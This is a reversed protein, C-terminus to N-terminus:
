AHYQRLEGRAKAVNLAANRKEILRLRVMAVGEGAGVDLICLNTHAVRKRASEITEKEIENLVQHVALWWPTTDPVALAGSRDVGDSERNEIRSGRDCLKIELRGIKM